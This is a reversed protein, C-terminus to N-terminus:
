CPKRKRDFRGEIRRNPFLTKRGEWCQLCEWIILWQLLHRTPKPNGCRCIRVVPIDKAFVERKERPDRHGGYSKARAGTM